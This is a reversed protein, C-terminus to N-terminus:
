RPLSQGSLVVVIGIITLGTGQSIAVVIPVSHRRAQIGGIFDTVGFGIAAALGLMVAM